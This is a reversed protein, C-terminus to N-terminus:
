GFDSITHTDFFSIVQQNFSTAVGGSFRLKSGRCGCPPKCGLELSELIRPGERPRWPCWVCLSYVSMCASLVSMCLYFYIFLVHSRAKATATPWRYIQLMKRLKEMQVSGTKGGTTFGAQSQFVCKRQTSFTTASTQRTTRTVRHHGPALNRKQEESM